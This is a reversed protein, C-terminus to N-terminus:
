NKSFYKQEQIDHLRHIIIDTAAPDHKKVTVSEIFSMHFIFLPQGGDEAELMGQLYRFSGSQKPASVPEEPDQLMKYVDSQTDFGNRSGSSNLSAEPSFDVLSVCESACYIIIYIIIIIYNDYNDIIM